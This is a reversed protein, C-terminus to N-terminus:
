IPALTDSTILTTPKTWGEILLREERFFIQVFNKPAVGTLPNGFISLISYAFQVAAAYSAYFDVGSNANALTAFVTENIHVNDGTGDGFDNRSFSAEHEVANHRHPLRLTLDFSLSLPGLSMTLESDVNNQTLLGFKAAILITDWNVNFAELAADM